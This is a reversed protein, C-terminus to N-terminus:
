KKSERLAKQGKLINLITRREEVTWNTYDTFYSYIEEDNIFAEINEDSTQKLVSDANYSETRGVLYDLSTGYFNALLILKDLPPTIGSTEYNAITSRDVELITAIQSQTVSFHKRLEALREGLNPKQSPSYPTPEGIYGILYDTSVNFIEALKMLNARQPHRKGSEWMGIAATTTGLKKALDAQSLGHKKRLEKIKSGEM